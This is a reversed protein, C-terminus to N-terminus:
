VWPVAKPGLNLLSSRPLIRLLAGSQESVEVTLKHKVLLPPDSLIVYAM